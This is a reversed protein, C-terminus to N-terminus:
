VFSTNMLGTVQGNVVFPRSEVVLFVCQLYELWGDCGFCCLLCYTEDTRSLFRHEVLSLLLLHV